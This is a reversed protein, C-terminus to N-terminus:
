LTTIFGGKGVTTMTLGYQQFLSGATLALGCCIGGIITTKVPLPKREAKSVRGRIILIIPILVLSGIINRSGTFTLPGMYDMGAQQSVFAMGWIAATIFLLLSNRLKQSNTM